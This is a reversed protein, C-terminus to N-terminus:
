RLVIVPLDNQVSAQLTGVVCKECNAILEDATRVCGLYFRMWWMLLHGLRYTWGLQVGGCCVRSPM